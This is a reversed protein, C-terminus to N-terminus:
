PSSKASLLFAITQKAIRNVGEGRVASVPITPVSFESAAHRRLRAYNEQTGHIDAKNAVIFWPKSSIPSMALPPLENSSPSPGTGISSSGFASWDVMRQESLEKLAGEKLKEYEKLENKLTTLTEIADGASLDVIFALVRAREVHRLFDLGLGRDLHADAVLGPIDAITFRTRRTGDSEFVEHEPRGENNDLVVTGVNPQLTTFAWSGIRAQSRSLSRLLTSKGANPFGVFGLDAWLKLELELELKMGRDGKTAFKPRMISKTVFRANGLGGVAGAALLMPQEMPKDLDLNIPSHPQMAALNSRRPRPLAPFPTNTYDAPMSSPALLWKDKKWVMDGQGREEIDGAEHSDADREEVEVPDHRSVERIVTGVPVQLLVDEGRQGGRSKGKGNNGKGARVMGRRALKHLSTEGGVAQIYINGGSGGDGGNPPGEPIFKERLFSVCGHGGSGAELKLTCKDTFISRGYEEPPPNLRQDDSGVLESVSTIESSYFRPLRALASPRRAKLSLTLGRNFLRSYLCPMCTGLTASMTFERPLLNSPVLLVPNVRDAAIVASEVEM